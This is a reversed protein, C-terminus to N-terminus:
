IYVFLSGYLASSFMHDYSHKHEGNASAIINPDERSSLHLRICAELCNYYETHSTEIKKILNHGHM